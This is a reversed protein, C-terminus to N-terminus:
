AAELLEAVPATVVRVPVLAAVPCGLERWLDLADEATACPVAGAPTAVIWDADPHVAACQGAAVARRVSPHRADMGPGAVAIAVVVARVDAHDLFVRSGPASHHSRGLRDLWRRVQVEHVDIVDALHHVKIGGGERM